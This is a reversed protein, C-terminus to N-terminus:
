LQKAYIRYRKRQNGGVAEILHRVRHNQEHHIVQIVSLALAASM